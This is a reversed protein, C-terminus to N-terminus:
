KKQKRKTTNSVQISNKIKKKANFLNIYENM